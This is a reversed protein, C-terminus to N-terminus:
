LLLLFVFFLRLATGSILEVKFLAISTLRSFDACTRRTSNNRIPQLFLALKCGILIFASFICRFYLLSKMISSFFRRDSFISVLVVLTWVVEVEKYSVISGSPTPDSGLLSLAFTCKLQM